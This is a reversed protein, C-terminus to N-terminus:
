LFRGTYIQSMEKYLSNAKPSNGECIRILPWESKPFKVYLPFAKQLGALESSSLQPMDLTPALRYDMAIDEEKM